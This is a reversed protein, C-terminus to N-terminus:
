GVMRNKEAVLNNYARYADGITRYSKVNEGNCKLTFEFLSGNLRYLGIVQGNKATVEYERGM